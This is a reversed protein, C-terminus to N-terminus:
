VEGFGSALSNLGHFEFWHFVSISDADQKGVPRIQGKVNIRENADPRIIGTPFSPVVFGEFAPWRYEAFLGSQM